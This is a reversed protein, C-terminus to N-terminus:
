CTSTDFGNRRQRSINLNRETEDALFNKDTVVKQGTNKEYVLRAQKATKGGKKGATKNEEV